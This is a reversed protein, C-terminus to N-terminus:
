RFGPNTHATNYSRVIQLQGLMWAFVADDGAGVGPTLGGGPPQATTPAVALDYLDLLRSLMAAIEQPQLAGAGVPLSYESVVGGAAAKILVKGSLTKTVTGFAASQLTDILATAGGKATSALQRLVLRTVEPTAALDGVQAM